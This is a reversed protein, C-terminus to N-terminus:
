PGSTELIVRAVAAPDDFTPVHGCGPLTMWRVRPSLEDRFRSQWPLLLADRAGWAITVPIDITRGGRFRDRSAAAFVADFGPSDLFSAVAEMAPGPPVAWPRGFFRWLLITRTVPNSTVFPLVRRLRRGLARYARFTIVNYRPARQRWLGAPSLATVSRARGRKALELALWGGLSNGAVHATDIGLGDCFAELTRALESPSCTEASPSASGGHGPLDVAIVDRRRELLPRVPDWIRLNSGLGHLLLLVPGDGAREFRLGTPSM